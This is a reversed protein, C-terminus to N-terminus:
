VPKFSGQYALFNLMKNKEKEIWVCEVLKTTEIKVIKITYGILNWIDLYIIYRNDYM